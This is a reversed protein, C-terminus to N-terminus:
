RGSIDKIAAYIVAVATLMMAIFSMTLFANGLAKTYINSALFEIM